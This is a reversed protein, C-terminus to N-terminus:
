TTASSQKPFGALLGSGQNVRRDLRAAASQLEHVRLHVVLRRAGRCFDQAQRVEGTKPDIVEVTQGAYDTQMVAGAEHAFAALREALVAIGLVVPRIQFLHDEAEDDVAGATRDAALIHGPLVASTAVNSGTMSRKRRRNEM